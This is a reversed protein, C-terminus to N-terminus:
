RLKSPQQQRWRWSSTHDERSSNTQFGTPPPLFKDSRTPLPFPDPSFLPHLPLLDRKYWTCRLYRFVYLIIGTWTKELLSCTCSSFWFTIATKQNTAGHLSISTQDQHHLCRAEGFRRSRGVLGCPSKVWFLMNMITVATFTFREDWFANMKINTYKLVQFRMQTM